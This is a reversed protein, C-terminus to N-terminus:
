IESELTSVLRKLAVPVSFEVRVARGRLPLPLHLPQHAHQPEHVGRVSGAGRPVHEGRQLPAPPGM